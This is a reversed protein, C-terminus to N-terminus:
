FGEPNLLDYIRELGSRARKNVATRSVELLAAADENTLGVVRTLVLAKREDRERQNRGLRALAREIDALRVLISPRHKQYILEPYGELLAEIEEETYRGWGRKLM